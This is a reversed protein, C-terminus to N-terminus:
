ETGWMLSQRLKMSIDLDKIYRMSMEPTTHHLLMQVQYIDHTKLYLNTAATARLSHTSYKDPNLGIAAAAEKVKDNFTNYRFCNAPFVYTEDLHMDKITKLIEVVDKPMPLSVPTEYGKIHGTSQRGRPFIASIGIYLM